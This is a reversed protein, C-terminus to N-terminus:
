KVMIEDVFIWADGGAGEHWVPLKGYNKAVIKIYRVNQPAIANGLTEMTPSYNKEPFSNVSHIVEMYNISDSSVSIDVYRPMMIWAGADQLFEAKIEKVIQVKGLDIVAEFDKGQYGLWNGGSYDTTGHQYDILTEAGGTTYPKDPQSILHIKRGKPIKTYCASNEM